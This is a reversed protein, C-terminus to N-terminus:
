PLPLPPPSLGLDRTEPQPLLSPDVSPSGHLPGAGALHGPAHLHFHGSHLGPLLLTPPTPDAPLIAPCSTVWPFSPSQSQTPPCLFSACFPFGESRGTRKQFLPSCTGSPRYEQHPGRPPWLLLHQRPRHAGQNGRPRAQASWGRRWGKWETCLGQAGESNELHFNGEFARKPEVHEICRTEPGM